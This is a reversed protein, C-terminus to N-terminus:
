VVQEAYNEIVNSKRKYPVFLNLCFFIFALGKFLNYVVNDINNKKHIIQYKVPSKIMLTKVQQNSLVLFLSCM